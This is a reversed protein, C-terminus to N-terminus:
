ENKDNRGYALIDVLEHLLISVELLLNEYEKSFSKGNLIERAKDDYKKILHYNPDVVLGKSKLPRYGTSIMVGEINYYDCDWGNIGASYGIRTKGKLLHQMSAYGVGIIKVYGNNVQKRTLKM